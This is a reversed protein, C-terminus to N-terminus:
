PPGKKITRITPWLGPKLQIPGHTGRLIYTKAPGLKSHINHRVHLPGFRVGFGFFRVFLVLSNESCNSPVVLYFLPKSAFRALFNVRFNLLM